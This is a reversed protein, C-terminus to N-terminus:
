FYRKLRLPLSPLQFEGFPLISPCFCDTRSGTSSSRISPAYVNLFSLLSSDNLSINVGVYDSYPDLSSLSTTSHKSFFLGSSLSSAAGLAGTMLLFFALVSSLAIVNCFLSDLFGSLPLHTLIPNRSVSLIWLNLRSLTYYNLAGPEFVELMRNFFASCTLPSSSAPPIPFYGLAYPPTFPVSPFCM